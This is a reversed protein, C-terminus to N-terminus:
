KGFDIESLVKEPPAVWCYEKGISKNKIFIKIIVKGCIYSTKIDTM